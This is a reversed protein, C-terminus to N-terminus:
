RAVPRNSPARAPCLDFILQEMWRWSDARSSKLKRDVHAIRSLRKRHIRLDFKKAARLLASANEGYARLDKTIDGPAVRQDLQDRARLVQRLQWAVLGLLKLPAERNLILANLHTLATNRDGLAIARGFAFADELHTDAVHVSVMEWTIKGEDSVLILKELARELFGIDTGVTLAIAQATEGSMKLGHRRGRQMVIDPMDRDRPHDFRMSFASRALLKATKQRQDYKGFVFVLVAEPSPANLYNKIADLAAEGLDDAQHVEVLRKPAMMPLTRALNLIEDIPASKAERRDHNFDAMPGDLIRQRIVALADAVFAREAGGIAIVPPLEDGELRQFFQNLDKSKV